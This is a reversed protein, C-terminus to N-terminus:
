IQHNHYLFYKLVKEFQANCEAGLELAIIEEKIFKNTTSTAKSIKSVLDSKSLFSVMQWSERFEQQELLDKSMCIAYVERLLKGLPSKPLDHVMATLFEICIRFNMFYIHCDHLLKPLKKRLYLDDILLAAVRKGDKISEVYPRFSLLRRIYELDSHSLNKIVKISNSYSSCLAYTNSKFFHEM